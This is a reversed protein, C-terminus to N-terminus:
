QYRKSQIAQRKLSGIQRGVEEIVDTVLALNVTSWVSNTSAEKGSGQVPLVRPKRLFLVASPQIPPYFRRQGQLTSFVVGGVGTNAFLRQIDKLRSVKGNIAIIGVVM